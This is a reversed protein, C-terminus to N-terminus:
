ISKWRVWRACRHARTVVVTVTHLTTARHGASVKIKTKWPLQPDESWLVRWLCRFFRNNPLNHHFEPDQFQPTTNGIRCNRCPTVRSGHTTVWPQRASDINTLASVTPPSYERRTSITPWSESMRCKHGGNHICKYGHNHRLCLLCSYHNQYTWTAKRSRTNKSFCRM